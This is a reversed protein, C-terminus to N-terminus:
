RQPPALRRLEDFFNFVVTLHNQKGQLGMDEPPALVFRKGDPHLDFLRANPGRTQFRGEAWLRPKGATFTDNNAVYPVIMIQRTSLNGAGGGYFLEPRTRSWVPSYGGTTSIQWKSGPGPFPRVYVEDRGSENSTYAVWRGDPSFAAQQEEATSNLFATPKGPKWGSVADGELSLLM